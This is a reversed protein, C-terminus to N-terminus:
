RLLASQPASMELSPKKKNEGKLIERDMRLRKVETELKRIKEQESSM